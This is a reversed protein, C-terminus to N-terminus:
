RPLPGSVAYEVGAADQFRALLSGHEPTPDRTFKFGQAKMSAAFAYLDDVAFGLQMTGHLHEASAPHLALTSTGTDFETWGPSQFRLPLGLADRYFAVAAPIDSVFMIVYRMQIM